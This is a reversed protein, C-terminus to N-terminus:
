PRGFEVERIRPAGKEMTVVVTVAESYADGGISVYAWGVDGPQKRPWDALTEGVEVPGIPGFDPPVIAEFATRLGEVTTRKRYAESTLAHAKAYDRAALAQAFDLAAKRFDTGPPVEPGEKACGTLPVAAALVTRAFSRMASSRM